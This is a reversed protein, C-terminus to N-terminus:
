KGSRHNRHGHHHKRKHKHHHMKPKHRVNAPGTLISSGPPEAAPPPPVPGKCGEGNCPAPEAPEPFGGGERADYVDFHEDRDSQLLQQSTSFFVDRGDSSADLLYSDTSSNGTTILSICGDTRASYDPSTSSCSGTGSREFEYVDVKGNVDTPAIGDSTEFFLRRGDDSLYRPQQLAVRWTPLSTGGHPRAGTPNCSACILRDAESDYLYAESVPEGSDQGVNDYGTLPSSSLFALYKGDPTARATQVQPESSTPSSISGGWDSVDNEGSLVAIFRSGEGERWLYLNRAGAEAKEGAANEQSGSLIGKAVFYIRSLDSSTGLVGLTETAAPGATLDRLHEGEEAGFDYLYLDGPKAGGVLKNVDSFLVKEGDATAALFHGKGGPGAGGQNADLQITEQGNIRAFLPAAMGSYTGGGYTWFIRSGDQSIAHLSVHALSGCNTENGFGGFSTAGQGVPVAPSGDPFVNVLRVGGGDTWEYLNRSSNVPAEPTLGGPASFIVHSFDSSAGFYTICYKALGEVVEPPETTLLRLAGTENDQLYLNERGPTAGPLLPPDSQAVAATSLDASFGRLPDRFETGRNPPTINSTQWGSTTRRSLYQTTSGAGAVGGFAAFSPYTIAEGDSSSEQPRPTDLESPGGTSGQPVGVEGGNKDTPSVKEYARNDPLGPESPRRTTFSRDPGVVTFPGTIATFRFYYTKEPELGSLVVGHTTLAANKQGGPLQEGPPAPVATCPSGSCPEPGYELYYTTSAYFHPNIQAKLTAENAGVSAAYQSFITPPKVPPDGIELPPPGYATVWSRSTGFFSFLRSSVYLDGIWNTALGQLGVGKTAGFVGLQNGASDLELIDNSLGQTRIVYIEGEPGVTLPGPQDVGALYRWSGGAYEYVGPASFDAYIRGEQADLSRVEWEPNPLDIETQYVGASNFNQIRGRDGVYVSGEPGVTLGDFSTFEAPKTGSIGAGCVDGGELQSKTCVDEHTTKNVEGGFMLLFDGDATFKEIRRNHFDLVYVNGTSDTAVSFPVNFQGPGEGRVGAQCGTAGTCVQLESAGNVVGWGFAELFEGWPSFVSIRENSSDAVYLRKGDISTALGVPIALKGAASGDEAGEEETPTQLLFEPEVQYANASASGIALLVAISILTVWLGRERLASM